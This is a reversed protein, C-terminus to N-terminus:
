SHRSGSQHQHHRCRGEPLALNVHRLLNRRLRQHFDVLCQANLCLATHCHLNRRAFATVCVIQLGRQNAIQHFLHVAGDYLTARSIATRALVWLFVPLRNVFMAEVADKGNVQHILEALYADGDLILLVQFVVDHTLMQGVVVEHDVEGVELPM